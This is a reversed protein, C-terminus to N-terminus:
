IGERPCTSDECYIYFQRFRYLLRDSRVKDSAFCLVHKAVLTPCPPPCCGLLLRQHVNNTKASCAAIAHSGSKESLSHSDNTVAVQADAIRRAECLQVTPDSATSVM